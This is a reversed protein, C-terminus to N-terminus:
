IDQYTGEVGDLTHVDTGNPCYVMLPDGPHLAAIGATGSQDDILKEQNTSATSQRSPQILGTAPDKLASSGLLYFIAGAPIGGGTVNPITATTTVVFTTTNFGALLDFFWTGDSLQVAYYDTTTTVHDAINGPATLGGGVPYNYNTSYKGPDSTLTFATTNIAGAVAVTTWNLPRLITVKEATNGTTYRMDRIHTVLSRGMWGAGSGFNNGPRPVRNAPTSAIKTADTNMIPPPQGAPGPFPPIGVTFATAANATASGYSWTGRVRSGSYYAM